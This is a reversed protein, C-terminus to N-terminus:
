SNLHKSKKLVSPKTSAMLYTEGGVGKIYAILCTEGGGGHIHWLVHRLVVGRYIGYTM